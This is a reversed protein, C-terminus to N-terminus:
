VQNLHSTSTAPNQPGLYIIMKGRLYRCCLLYLLSLIHCLRVQSQLDVKGKNVKDPFSATLGYLSSFFWICGLISKQKITPFAMAKQIEEFEALEPEMLHEENEEDDSSLHKATNCCPFINSLSNWCLALISFPYVMWTTRYALTYLTCFALGVKGEGTTLSYSVYVASIPKVLFSILLNSFAINALLLNKTSEQLTDDDRITSVVMLNCFIGVFALTM